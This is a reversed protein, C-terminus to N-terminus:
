DHITLTLPLVGHRSRLDRPEPVSSGPSPRVCPDRARAAAERPARVAPLPAAEAVSCEARALLALLQLMRLQWRASWAVVLGIGLVAAGAALKLARSRPRRSPSQASNGSHSDPM